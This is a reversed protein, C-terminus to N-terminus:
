VKSPVFPNHLLQTVIKNYISYSYRLRKDPGTLLIFPTISTGRLTHTRATLLSQVPRHSVMTINLHSRFSLGSHLQPRLLSHVSPIARLRLEATTELSYACQFPNFVTLCLIKTQSVRHIIVVHKNRYKISEM